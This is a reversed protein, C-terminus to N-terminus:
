KVEPAPAPTSPPASPGGPANQPGPAGGNGGRPGGPPRSPPTLGNLGNKYAPDKSAVNIRYSVSNATPFDSPVKQTVKGTAAWETGRQLLVVCDTSSLGVVDHGATYHFVRGKGYPIAIIQLEDHGTGRNEPDSYATVLANMNEGPGRLRAYLEDGQHMWSSPL